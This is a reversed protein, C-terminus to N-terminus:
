SYSRAQAARTKMTLAHFAGACAPAKITETMQGRATQLADRNTCSPINVMPQAATDAVPRYAARAPTNPLPAWYRAGM